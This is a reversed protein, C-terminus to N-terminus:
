QGSVRRIAGKTLTLLAIRANSKQGAEYLLVREEGLDVVTLGRAAGDDPYGSLPEYFVGRYHWNRWNADGESYHLRVPETRDQGEEERSRLGYVLLNRGNIPLWCADLSKYSQGSDGDDVLTRRVTWSVGDDSTCLVIANKSLGHEDAKGSATLTMAWTNEYEPIRHRYVRAYSASKSEFGVVDSVKKNTVCVGGYEFHIGDTSRCFITKSNPAHVYLFLAKAEENWVAHPSSVHSAQGIEKGVVQGHLRWPGTISDALYLRVNAGGHPSTYLYFKALPEKFLEAAHILSPFILDKGDDILTSHHAAHYDNKAPEQGLSTQAGFNITLQAAKGGKISSLNLDMLDSFALANPFRALTMHKGDVFLQRIDESLTTKYINGSRQPWGSTIPLTGSLIVKEDQYPPLTIPDGSTGAVGSLDVTERYTGSRIYVTDGSGVTDAAKQTTAFSEALTVPNADVGQPSVYYTASFAASGVMTAGLLM